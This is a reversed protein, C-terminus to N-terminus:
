AHSDCTCHHPQRSNSAVREPVESKYKHSACASAAVLQVGVLSLFYFLNFNTEPTAAPLFSRLM